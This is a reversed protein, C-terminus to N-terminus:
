GPLLGGDITETGNGDVILNPTGAIKKIVITALQKQAQENM